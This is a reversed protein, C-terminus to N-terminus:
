HGGKGQLVQLVLSLCTKILEPEAADHPRLTVALTARVQGPPDDPSPAQREGVTILIALPCSEAMAPLELEILKGGSEGRDPRAPQPAPVFYLWGSPVPMRWVKFGGDDGVVVEWPPPAGVLPGTSDM